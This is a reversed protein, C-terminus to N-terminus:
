GGLGAEGLFAFVGEELVEGGVDAGVGVGEGEGRAAGGPGDEGGDFLGDLFLNLTVSRRELIPAHFDFAADEGTEVFGEDEIALGFVAEDCLVGTRSLDDSGKKEAM